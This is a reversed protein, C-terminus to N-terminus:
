TVQSFDNINKSSLWTVAALPTVPVEEGAVARGYRALSLQHCTICALQPLQPRFVSVATLDFDTSKGYWRWHDNCGM